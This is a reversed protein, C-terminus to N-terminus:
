RTGLVVGDGCLRVVLRLHDDVDICHRHVLVGVHEDLADRHAIHVGVLRGVGDDLHRQVAGVTNDSEGLADTSRHVAKHRAGAELVLRDHEAGRNGVGVERQLAQRIAALTVVEAVVLQYHGHRVQAVHACWRLGAHAAHQCVRKGQRQHHKGDVIRRDHHDRLRVQRGELVLLHGHVADSQHVDITCVGIYRNSHLHAEARVGEGAGHVVNHEEFAGALPVAADHEGGSQGSGVTGQVAGLVAWQGVPVGHELRGVPHADGDVVVARGPCSGLSRRRLQLVRVLEEHGHDRLVIRRHPRDGVAGDVVHLLLQVLHHVDSGDMHVLVRRQVQLSHGEVVNIGVLPEPRCQLHVDCRLVPLQEQPGHLPQGHEVAANADAIRRQPEAARKGVDVVRQPVQAINPLFVVEAGVGDGEQGAIAAERARAIRQAVAHDDRQDDVRHVVARRPHHRRLREHHFLLLSGEDGTQGDLVNVVGAAQHGHLQLHRLAHQCQWPQVRQHREQHTVSVAVGVGHDCGVLRRQVDRQCAERVSGVVVPVGHQVVPVRHRHHHVVTPVRATASRQLRCVHQEDVSDRGIVICGDDVHGVLHPDAIRTHEVRSRTAVQQAAGQNVGPAPRHLFVLRQGDFADVDFVHVDVLRETGLDVDCQRAVEARQVQERGM